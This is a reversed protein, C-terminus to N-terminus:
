LHVQFKGVDLNGIKWDDKVIRWRLLLVSAGFAYRSFRTHLKRHLEFGSSQFVIDGRQVVSGYCWAGHKLVCLPSWIGAERTRSSPFASHWARWCECAPLPASDVGRDRRWGGGVRFPFSSDVIFVKEVCLAEACTPRFTERVTGIYTSTACPSQKPLAELTWEEYAISLDHPPYLVLHTCYLWSASCVLSCVPM